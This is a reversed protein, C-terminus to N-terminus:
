SLLLGVAKTGFICSDTIESFSLELFLSFSPVLKRAKKKMGTFFTLCFPTFISIIETVNPLAAVSCGSWAPARQSPCLWLAGASCWVQGPGCGWVAPPLPGAGGRTGLAHAM